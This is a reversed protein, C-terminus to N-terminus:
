NDEGASPRFGVYNTIDAEPYADHIEGTVCAPLPRRIGKGLRGHFVRSMYSYLSFRIEKNTKNEAEGAAGVEAMNDYETTAICPAIRCYECFMPEDFHIVPSVEEEEEEAAEEAAAEAAAFAAEAEEAATAEFYNRFAQFVSDASSSDASNPQSVTVGGNGDPKFDMMAMQGPQSCNALMAYIAQDIDQENM